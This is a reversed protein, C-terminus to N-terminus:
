HFQHEILLPSRGISFYSFGMGTISFNSFIMLFIELLKQFTENINPLQLGIPITKFWKEM